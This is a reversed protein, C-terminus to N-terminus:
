DPHMQEFLFSPKLPVRNINVNLPSLADAIACALAPIAGIVGNEGVGKFGGLADISPSEIHGIVADPVDLATPMLLDLFNASLHQGEDDYVIEGMLAEGIGQAIGGQIQGDVIMPNVVRGCDHVVVYREIVVHGDDANVAVQAIHVANAMTATPPHYFETAELGNQIGAPMELENISYAAEIVQKLPMSVDPNTGLRAYGRRLIINDPTTQLFHAAIEKMKQSIKASAQIIAGGGTVTARSAFTNTGYPSIATDGEVVTVDDIDVGLYDAAIQAFSTFHGQGSAAHSPAVIVKGTPEIRVLASDFGPIRILGRARFGKVGTGSIETFCCIGIGRYFGDSLRDPRQTQRYKDYDILGLAKELSATYSGTDYRVGVANIYPMDEPRVMNRRRIEAPDVGLKRAIRDMIGEIALFCSPQSVGRVAGVPCTNTTLTIATYSYNSIRYPGVIMRVGGTPELTCAFPYTAYAGANTTLHVRLAAITGDHRVSASTRYSHNRAHVNTLLEERRDQIWKVTRGYKKALAVTIFEEPYAHAKTGFGGGVDPVVLRLKTEAMGLCEAIVTRVLHPIQTTTHLTVSELDNSPFAVCGRPEIPVGAIRATSFTEEITFDGEVFRAAFEPTEFAAEFMVNSSLEEHVLPAETEAAAEMTAVAPLAKYEVHVLEIADQAIYHSDAIVVAVTEGVFRVRTRAIVDRETPKYGSFIVQPRIPRVLRALDEGVLVDIVGPLARALTTDISVIDAHAMPSLVMGLYATNAPVPIDDIFRGTGRVLWEDEKRGISAGIYSGLETM